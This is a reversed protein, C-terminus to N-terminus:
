SKPPSQSASLKREARRLIKEVFQERADGRAYDSLVGAVYMVQLGKDGWGTMHAALRERPRFAVYFGFEDTDLHIGSDKTYNKSDSLFRRWLAAIRTALSESIEREHLIPAIHHYDRTKPKSEGLGMVSWIHKSATVEFARYGQLDRSIGVTWEAQFPPLDLMRVVVDKRWGRSLVYHVGDYYPSEWEAIPAPDGHELYDKETSQAVSCFLVLATVSPPFIRFVV